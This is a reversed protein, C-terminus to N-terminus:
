KTTKKDVTGFREAEGHSLIAARPRDDHDRTNKLKLM